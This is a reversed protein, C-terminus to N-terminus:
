GYGAAYLWCPKWMQDSSCQLDQTLLWQITSNSTVASLDVRPIVKVEKVEVKVKEKVPDKDPPTSTSPSPSIEVKDLCKAAATRPPSATVSKVITSQPSAPSAPVVPGNDAQPAATTPPNTNAASTSTPASNSNTTSNGSTTSNTTNTTSVPNTTSPAASSAVDVVVKEREENNIPSVEKQVEVVNEDVPETVTELKENKNNGSNVPINGSSSTPSPSSDSPSSQLSASFPVGNNSPATTSTTSPKDSSLRFSTLATATASLMRAFPRTQYGFELGRDTLSSDVGHIEIIRREIEVMSKLMNVCADRDIFSGFFYEAKDEMIITLANPIYLLTNTREIRDIGRMPLLVRLDNWGGFAVYHQLIYLRSLIDSILVYQIYLFPNLEHIGEM